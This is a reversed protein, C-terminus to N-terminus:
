RLINPHSFGNMLQVERLVNSRNASVTNMKLVMIQATTKHTVKCLLSEVVRALNLVVFTFSFTHSSSSSSVQILLYTLNNRSPVTLVTRM